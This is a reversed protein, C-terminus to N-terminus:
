ISSVNKAGKQSQIRNYIEERHIPLNKPAYIMVTAGGNFSGILTISIDDGIIIKQGIYRSLVLNGHSKNEITM